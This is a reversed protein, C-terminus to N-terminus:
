LEMAAYRIMPNMIFHRSEILELEYSERQWTHRMVADVINASYELATVDDFGNLLGALLVSCTLDGVGVPQKPFLYLPRAIHLVQRGTVLLMEFAAPDKACKGLHKVLVKSVGQAVLQQAAYVVEDFTNLTKGTLIELEHLNPGMVDALAIAENKFFTDVGNAVVCGKEPHGMVPDCFYLAKPNYRRVQNVALAVEECQRSDGLYGSLVADCEPLKDNQELGAIVHTLQGPPLAMGQWHGYQTHNSFQVTHFPWVDIGLLQMPLVAAKNGAYGYVVSSQISLVNKM